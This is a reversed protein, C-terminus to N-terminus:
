KYFQCIKSIRTGTTSHSSSPATDEGHPGRPQWSLQFSSMVYFPSNDAINKESLQFFHLAFIKTPRLFLFFLCKVFICLSIYVLIMSMTCCRLIICYVFRSQLVTKKLPHAEGESTIQGMTDEPKTGQSLEMPKSM